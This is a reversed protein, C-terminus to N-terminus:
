WTMLVVLMLIEKQHGFKAPINKLGQTLMEMKIMCLKKFYKGKAGAIDYIITFSGEYRV